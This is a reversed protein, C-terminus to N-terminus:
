KPGHRFENILIHHAFLFTNYADDLANHKRGQFKLGMRNMSKSLGSQMGQGRSFQILQYTKKLDFCSRGFSYSHVDEGVQRYLELADQGGWTIPNPISDKSFGVLAKYADILPIHSDRLHQSTIGCLKEIYPNLPEPPNIYLSLQSHVEGTSLNGRVAGIQIINGSPQNM